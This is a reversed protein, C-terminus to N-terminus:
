FPYGIGFHYQLDNRTYKRTFPIWGQNDNNSPDRVKFAADVRVVIFDLDIRLGFGSGVAFQRYFSDFNFKAETRQEGKNISWINGADVFWAGEILWFLPFRYELNGVIKLNATQNPYFTTDSFTGPGLRGIQWARVDSSGGASYQKVFPMSSINGYPKGIGTFFRYVLRKKQSFVQYFRVDFDIKIYQAIKTQPDIVYSGEHTKIGLLKMSSTTLNGASELTTRIYHYSRNKRLLQNSYVLSYWSSAIFYNDFDKIRAANAQLYNPDMTPFRVSNLEIPIITHRITQSGQWFYGFNGNMITRTYNPHNQFNYGINTSTKPHYKKYFYDKSFPLFFKPFDIGVEAGYEYSNFKWQNIEADSVSENVIQAAAKIKTNFTEAGHFINRHQYSLNSGLEYTKGSNSAELEITYSQVIYPTLQIQCDIAYATDALPEVVQFRINSLKFFGISNLFRNTEEVKRIDYRDGHAISFTKLILDPDIKIKGQHLFYFNKYTITDFSNMYNEGEVIARKPDFNPFIYINRIYCPKIAQENPILEGSPRLTFGINATIEVQFPTETTDATYNIANTSFNYFGHERLTRTIRQREKDFMEIDFLENKKILSSSTDPLIIDAIAQSAINYQIRRITYPQNLRVVYYVTAMRDKVVLSDFVEANYYGKNELHNKIQSISKQTLFRDYIVPPEGVIKGLWNLPGKDNENCFTSYFYLHFPFLQFVRKNPKQQIYISLEDTKISRSDIRVANKHLLYQNEPVFRTPSCSYMLMGVFFLFALKPKSWNSM